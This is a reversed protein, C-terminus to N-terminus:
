LCTDLLIVTLIFELKLIGTCFPNYENWNGSAQCTRSNPGYQYATNCSVNATTGVVYRGNDAPMDYTVETNLLDLPECTELLIHM